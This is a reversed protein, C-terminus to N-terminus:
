PDLFGYAALIAQGQNGLVFDIFAQGGNANRADNTVVIPYEAVVNVDAPIQVGEAAEGAALVDTAYVIGADAEGLTVKAVVAKVNEEFSKPTVAVGANDYVQAAYKGCPVQPACQVVVLDPNALDAVSDIGLPNGRAVIIEAVNTAFVVPESAQNGADVLKKMTALDASAFVDAPAGEGIQTVLESSSAFNLTVNANPHQVMFAEAVETFAATLSAAAFVTVDDAIDGSGIPSEPEAQGSRDSGCSTALAGLLLVVM